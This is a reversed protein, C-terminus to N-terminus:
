PKNLQFIQYDKSQYVLEGNSMLFEDLVKEYGRVFVHNCEEPGDTLMSENIIPKYISPIDLYWATDTPITTYICPLNLKRIASIDNPSIPSRFSIGNGLNLFL